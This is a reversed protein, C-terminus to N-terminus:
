ARQDSACRQRMCHRRRRLLDRTARMASPYVYAQPIMGGRLLLAITQADINDNKAKGGPIAQMYLAHGLVCPIGEQACLDALWYWTFLCAVAVVVDDRYPAIVKLFTEPHAKFNQHVMIEGDQNLICVYMTRAHLDIGCYTKHQKTYFQM